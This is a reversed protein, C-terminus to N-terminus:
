EVSVIRVQLVKRTNGDGVTQRKTPQNAQKKWKGGGVGEELIYAHVKSDIIM